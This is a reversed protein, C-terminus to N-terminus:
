HQIVFKGQGVSRDSSTVSYFYMGDPFGNSPFEVTSQDSEKRWVERGFQDFVTIARNTNNDTFLFSTSLNSPNPFVNVRGIWSNEIVADFIGCTDSFNGGIWEVFLTSSTDNFILGTSLYVSSDFTVIQRMAWTTDNGLGCWQTGDWAAVHDAHVGGALNFDGMAYLRGGMVTMSEVESFGASSFIGGGPAIWQDTSADYKSIAKGQNNGSNYSGAYLEGNYVCMNYVVGYFRQGVIEWGGNVYKFVYYFNDAASFAGVYLTDNYVIMSQTGGAFQGQGLDNWQSGDWMAITNFSVGNINDSTYPSAVVLNNQYQVMVIAGSFGFKGLSDFTTGNWIVVYNHNTSWSSFGGGLAINGNYGTICVFRACMPGSCSETGTTGWSSGNWQAFGPAYVGGITDFSGVGLLRHNLTDNFFRHVPFYTTGPHFVWNQGGAHIAVLIAAISIFHKM